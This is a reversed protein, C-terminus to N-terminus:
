DQGITVTVAQAQGVDAVGPFYTGPYGTQEVADRMLAPGERLTAHIVYDGPM